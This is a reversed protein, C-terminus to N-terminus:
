NSVRSGGGGLGWGWGWGLGAAVLGQRLEVDLPSLPVVFHVVAQLVVREGAVGVQLENALDSREGGSKM